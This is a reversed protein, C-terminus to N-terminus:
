GNMGVLGVAEVAVEQSVENFALVAVQPLSSEVMRRLASRIQPSCLIVANRGTQTLETQKEAIQKVIQQAMTPPMTNANGRERDIHGNILEELAPDLTLVWLRDRDDVYQKCITRGLSNRVYETLVDLDKTRSSFDGLTELITELDRVPVRERLLNQMVKQLEGPKIQTPIVEEVLAPVRAKINDVLNKVEQRTLLEHAHSKILETLHTALVASAEVDTYNLLEAQPREPETIWYAPLGFAPETTLSGGPIPGSTAGNDMALFQEPYTVGRGIPQGKLKVVYDNASLQMNDRIRIPPVIIGLETAIQRRIMSIRDLLDGGKSADVLKGLGYGVELEM